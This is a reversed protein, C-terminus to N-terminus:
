PHENNPHYFRSSHSPRPMYHTHAIPSSYVLNLHLLTLSLSWKPSGPTSPLIILHITLFHPTPTHVPDLQSLIPVPPPRKPTNFCSAIDVARNHKILLKDKTPRRITARGAAASRPCECTVKDAGPCQKRVQCNGSMIEAMVCKIFARMNRHCIACTHNSNGCPLNFLM